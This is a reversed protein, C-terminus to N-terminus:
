IFTTQAAAWSWKGKFSANIPPGDLRRLELVKTRRCCMPLPHSPSLTPPTLGPLFVWIPFMALATLCWIRRRGFVALVELLRPLWLSIDPDACPCVHLCNCLSIPYKIALVSVLPNPSFNLHRPQVLRTPHWVAKGFILQSFRLIYVLSFYQFDWVLNQGVDCWNILHM